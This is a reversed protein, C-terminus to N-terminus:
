RRSRGGRSAPAPPPAKEYVEIWIGDPDKVYATGGGYAAPSLVPEAGAAVLRDYAEAVDDVIFGLHDLGEGAVYPTAHRSREPYWNLEIHQGSTPDELVVWIGYGKERLDGRRVEKLGLVGTYFRVSRELDRVRIGVYELHMRRPGRGGGLLNPRRLFPTAGSLNSSGGRPRGEAGM